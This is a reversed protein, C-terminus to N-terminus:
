AFSAELKQELRRAEQKMADFKDMADSMVAQVQPKRRAWEDRGVVLVYVLAACLSITYVASLLMAWTHLLGNCASKTAHDVIAIIVIASVTLTAILGVGMNHEQGAAVGVLQMSALILVTVLVILLAAIFFGGVNLVLYVGFWSALIRASLLAYDGYHIASGFWADAPGTAVSDELWHLLFHVMDLLFLSALWVWLNHCGADVGPRGADLGPRIPLNALDHGRHPASVLLVVATVAMSSATMRAFLVRWNVKGALEQAQKRSTQATALLADRETAAAAVTADWTMQSGGPPTAINYQPTRSELVAQGGQGDGLFVPEVRKADVRAPPQVIPVSPPPIAPPVM